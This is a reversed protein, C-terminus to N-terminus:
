FNGNLSGRSCFLLTLYFDQQLSRQWTATILSSTTPVSSLSIVFAEFRVTQLQNKIVYTWWLTKLCRTSLQLIFLSAQLYVQRIPAKMCCKVCKENPKKTSKKLHSLATKKVKQALIEMIKTLSWLTRFYYNIKWLIFVQM